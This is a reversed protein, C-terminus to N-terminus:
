DEPEDEFSSRKTEVLLRFGAAQEAVAPNGRRSFRLCRGSPADGGPRITTVVPIERVLGPLSVFAKIL